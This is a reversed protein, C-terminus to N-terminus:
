PPAAPCVTGLNAQIIQLDADSTAGDFNFDYTSSGSWQGVIGLYTDIDDQDVRGDDNGDGPCAPQSSLIADMEQRLLKHNPIEDGMLVGDALLNRDATDLLPTGPAQDIRYLEETAVDLPGDTVPDYNLAHNRVLKYRDNRVARYTTWGVAVRNQPYLVPNAHFIAQNVQWCHQLGGQIVDSDDAGIGWWDGGNDECVSKSTPTHTCVGGGPGQQPPIVCPGNLGGNAQINLGGQAFNFQRLSGQAPDTLYPLMSVSDLTRPVRAGVDLGALEGFLSFVDVGNVMHEVDRGPSEVMPGAVVLPVWIGTQYASGKARTPDFPAKVTPGFSGNDGYIVVVTDSAAPDYSVGGGPAAEAIGTEVLLRGLETDMAEVLANYLRKQNAPDNCDATLNTALGSPLLAGPPPQLPTHAASFSVTAMWPQGSGSRAQIWEIAADVEITSRYGRGRKDMLAAEEVVGDHNIVLPSVYHANEHNWVLTSPPTGQCSEGPDLIGGRTLCQLGPSDGAANNGTLVVCQIGGPEPVYCAGFDAGNAADHATDPVFGCSYTDEPRVGGATTDISGPLGGTWGHFHDWGLLAPAGNGAANHEPGALHFKGFMASEYNADRLLKPTTVEFPSVQSNALDEPGIAQQINHRLPYRGAFLAARGPSCEPMSWTNRFRLGGGAIADISPASPGANDGYGFAAMQDVGVDDMIVLLINPRVIPEFGDKFVEDDDGALSQLAAVPDSAPSASAAGCSLLGFLVILASGLQLM